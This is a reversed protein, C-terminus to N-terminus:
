QEREDMLEFETRTAVSKELVNLLWCAAFSRTLPGFLVDVKMWVWRLLICAKLFCSADVLINTWNVDCTMNVYATGIQINMM